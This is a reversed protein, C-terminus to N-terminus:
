NRQQALTFPHVPYRRANSGGLLRKLQFVSFIRDANGSDIIIETLPTM